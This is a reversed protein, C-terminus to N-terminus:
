LIVKDTLELKVLEGAQKEAKKAAAALSNAGVTITTLEGKSDEFTADFAKM